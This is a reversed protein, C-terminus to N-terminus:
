LRSKGAARAKAWRRRAAEALAKRGAATIRRKRRRGAKEAVTTTPMERAAVARRPAGSRGNLGSKLEAIAAEVKAKEAELAQIALEITNQNM